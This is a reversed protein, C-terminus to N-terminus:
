APEEVLVVSISIEGVRIQLTNPEQWSASDFDAERFGFTQRSRAVTFAPDEQPEEGEAVEGVVIPGMHGLPDVEFFIYEGPEEAPFWKKWKEIWLSDESGGRLAGSMMSVMVPSSPAGIYVFVGGGMMSLLKALAQEYNLEDV